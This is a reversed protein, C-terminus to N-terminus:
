LAPTQGAKVLAIFSGHDRLGVTRGFEAASIKGPPKMEIPKKPTLLTSALLDVECNNVVIGHFGSVGMRHGVSLQGERIAQILDSLRLGSRKRAFLLNEWSNDAEVVPVAGTLLEAVFATGDSTRWPNKVKAIRTRPILLDEDELARLEHLTAGMTGRMVKPGVLTPIEALLEAHAQADFVRRSWPRDDQEPLAGVELLFHEIVQVGIGIEKAATVLSHLRREEVVEGLLTDGPAIPWHDLICERLINCFPAFGDEVANTGNFAQYMAGFAKNPEDLHGTTSAAIQDLTQRIFAEGHRVVGFGAAHETSNVPTEELQDKKLLAEGLLRCVTTIAFLPQGKLWTDDHNNQLRGDLWLDYDFLPIEPQDLTGTLIEGEIELLRARIDYRERPKDSKWLPVLPHRHRVCSVVERLQWDGRMIMAATAPGGHRAADERLCVPCGRMVPNCLARSVFLGGRFQMRVNGARIGTWSLM